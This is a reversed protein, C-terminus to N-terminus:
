EEGKKPLREDDGSGTSEIEGTGIWDRLERVKM